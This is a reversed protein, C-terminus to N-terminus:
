ESPRQRVAVQPDSSPFCEGEYVEFNFDDVAVVDGLTKTVFRKTVHKLQVQVQAM